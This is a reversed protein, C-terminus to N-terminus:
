SAGKGGTLKDAEEIWSGGMSKYINIITISAAARIQIASLEAPFLQQQANLVTLYPTYGGNYQLTALRSYEKYSNVKKEEAVLQESLKQRSILSNEMDAFAAQIAKEYAFLAAKQAAEAQRVQGSINGATFIPGLISGGYNWTKSPGRFLKSLDESTIGEAGTLSIRPFYLAKAAGIQANAAILNQEAQMIDPRRELLKSPLGAPVPPIVLEFLRRGRPIDAPNNGLLISLANETEAIQIEIQPIAAATTEYQSRAQEVTMMSVQGYKQQLEFIRVSEGYTKLTDKAILLQEDLARLLIYSAAVETTLSLIIGRRAEISALLKAQAAESLRRIRGWLDIEWSAGGLAQFNNYPNLGPAPTISNNSMKQKMGGGSYNLQPFLASRTTTLIGAAGDINAAAIKLDKNNLLAQDILQDLVPDNFQKWWKNDFGHYAGKPEYRFGAPIDVEPRQYDPGVMCGAVSLVFMFIILKKHM